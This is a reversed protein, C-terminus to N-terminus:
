HMWRGMRCQGFQRSLSIALPDPPGPAGRSFRDPSLQSQAFRLRCQLYTPVVGRSSYRATLYMCEDRSRPHRYYLLTRVARTRQQTLKRCSQCAQLPRPDREVVYRRLSAVVRTTHLATHLTRHGQPTHQTCHSARMTLSMTTVTTYVTTHRASLSVTNPGCGSKTWCCRRRGPRGNPRVLCCCAPEYLPACSLSGCACRSFIGRRPPAMSGDGGNM